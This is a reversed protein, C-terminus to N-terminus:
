HLNRNARKEIEGSIAKTPCKEVCKMCQQCKSYDIKAVNNEFIIADYECVKACQKCSICGVKCRKNLTKKVPEKNNCNVHIRNSFPVMVIVNQPCEEVCKGCGTCKNDNIKAVHNETIEIADFPCVAVCSGYGLCGFNCSKRGGKIMSAAKCDKIGTYEFKQVCKDTGGACIVRAVKKESEVAAKGMIEAIRNSAEASAVPCGNVEASGAVIANALGDCGPFGCGGCNAGPLVERIQVVRPDVEVSFKHSAYALMGGFFVGMGGLAFVPTLIISLYM